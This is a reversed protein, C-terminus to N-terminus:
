ASACVLRAQRQRLSRLLLLLRAVSSPMASAGSLPLRQIVAVPAPCARLYAAAHPVEQCRPCLCRKSKTDRPPEDRIKASHCQREYRTDAAFFMAREKHSMINEPLLCFASM